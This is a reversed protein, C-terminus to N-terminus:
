INISLNKIKKKLNKLDEWSLKKHEPFRILYSPNFTILVSYSTNKIIIEKWKGREISIKSNLGTLAEMATSGMLMIIKPNIISIHKKLFVSYRKIEDKSPKRDIPPRFNVVYTLYVDRKKIDIARFMKELLIGDEDCFIEGTIDDKEAPAEGIVMLKSDINGGGFIIQKANEKLKCDKISSIETKLTELDKHKNGSTKNSQLNKNNLRNIPQNGFIYQNEISDVFQMSKIDNQNIQKKIM